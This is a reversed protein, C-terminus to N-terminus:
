STYVDMFAIIKGASSSNLSVSSIESEIFLDGLNVDELEGPTIFVVCVNVMPEAENVTYEVTEFGIEFPATSIM